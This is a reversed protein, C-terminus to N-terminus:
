ADRQEPSRLNRVRNANSRCVDDFEEWTSPMVQWCQLCRKFFRMGQKSAHAHYELRPHKCEDTM